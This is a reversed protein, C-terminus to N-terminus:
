KCSLPTLYTSLDEPCLSLNMPITLVQETSSHNHWKEAVVVCQGRHGYFLHAEHFRNFTSPPPPPISAVFQMWYVAVFHFGWKVVRERSSLKESDDSTEERRRSSSNRIGRKNNVSHVRGGMGVWRVNIDRWTSSSCHCFITSSIGFLIADILNYLEAILLYPSRVKRM